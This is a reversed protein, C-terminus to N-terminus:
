KRSACVRSKFENQIRKIEYEDVETLIEVDDQTMYKRIYNEIVIDAIDKTYGLGIIVDKTYKQSEDNM